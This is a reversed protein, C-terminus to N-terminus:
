DDEGHRGPVPTPVILSSPFAEQQFDIATESELQEV